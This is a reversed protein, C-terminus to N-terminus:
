KIRIFFDKEIKYKLCVEQRSGVFLFDVVKRKGGPISSFIIDEESFNRIRTEKGFELIEVQIIM